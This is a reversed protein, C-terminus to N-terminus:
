SHYLCQPLDDPSFRRCCYSGYDYGLDRARGGSIGRRGHSVHRDCTTGPSISSIFRRVTAADPKMFVLPEIVGSFFAM